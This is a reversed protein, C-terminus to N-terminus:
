FSLFAITIFLFQFFITCLGLNFHLHALFSYGLSFSVLLRLYGLQSREALVELCFLFVFINIPLCWLNFFSSLYSEFYINFKRTHEQTGYNAFKKGNFKKRTSFSLFFQSHFLVHIYGACIGETSIKRQCKVTPKPSFM